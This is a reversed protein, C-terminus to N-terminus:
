ISSSWILRSGTIISYLRPTFHILIKAIIVCLLLTVIPSIVYELLVVLPYQPLYHGCFKVITLLVVFHFAYIFFNYQSMILIKKNLKGIALKKSIKVVIIMYLIISIQHIMTSRYVCDMVLFFLTLTIIVLWNYNDFKDIKYNYKVILIGLVWFVIAQNSVIPTSWNYIWILAVFLFFLKPFKNVVKQIPISLFNLIFLDRVFWLAVNFPMDRNIKGVYADIWDIVGWASIVNDGNSFYKSTFPISQAIYFIVIYLSIFIFYPLLLTKVKKNINSAWTFTKSHLLISSVIFFCPVAIRSFCESIIYRIIQQWYSFDSTISTNGFSATSSNSHIFIVMITCIVKIIQIRESQQKDIYYM